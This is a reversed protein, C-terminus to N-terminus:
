LAVVQCGSGANMVHAHAPVVRDPHQSGGDRRSTKGQLLGPHRHILDIQDLNVLRKCRYHDGPQPFSTVVVVPGVDIATRDGEAVAATREDELRTLAERTRKGQTSFADYEKLSYSVRLQKYEDTYERYRRAKAAQYKVSRLQKAVEEVIDNLRLLNQEVRELRSQAEKRRAKYKSIGAAEDFVKRREVNSSVLIQDIRGQEIVSYCQMGIGTDLLLNKIDKLRCPQKNIFYAGTGDRYVRRTLSVEEFDLPLKRDSNDVTLTAEAFGPSKRGAAGNFIIDAMETGRLSKVSQEGLIWKVADVVNSKGCGNPGVLATIGPEFVFETPDVFSKFGALKIKELRM